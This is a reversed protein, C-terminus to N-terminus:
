DGTAQSCCAPLWRECRDPAKYVAFDVLYVPRMQLLFFSLVAALLVSCCMVVTVLNFTLDTQSAVVWLKVLEGSRLM